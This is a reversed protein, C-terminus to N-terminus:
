IVRAEDRLVRVLEKAVEQPEGEIFRCTPRAAPPALRVFTSGIPSEVASLLDGSPITAVPEKRAKMLKPLPPTRPEVLGKECTILVPLPGELVEEAGEVRRHARFRRQPTLIELQTVAGIHALGLHEALAPGLEGADNDINQKGCFILDFGAAPDRRIAAALVAALHLEDRLPVDDGAVLVARDAGMALAHRLTEAVDAPGAGLVVIEEVGAGSERLRVAQEVGFEDFPDCVFRLGAPDIGSGDPLLRAAARSDPVRKVIACLRM